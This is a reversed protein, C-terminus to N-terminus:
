TKSLNHRKKGVQQHHRAAEIGAAQPTIWSTGQLRPADSVVTLFTNTSQKVEEEEEEEEEAPSTTSM